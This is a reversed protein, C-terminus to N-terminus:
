EIDGKGQVIGVKAFSLTKESLKELPPSNPCVDAINVRPAAWTV